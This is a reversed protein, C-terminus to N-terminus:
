KATLVIRTAESRQSMNAGGGQHSYARALVPGVRVPPVLMLLVVLMAVIAVPLFVQQRRALPPSSLVRKARRLLLSSSHAFTLTPVASDHTAALAALARVYALRDGTRRAASDDCIFEADHRLRRAIAGIMPQSVLVAAAVDAFFLWRSDRRELHAVEHAVVALREAPMLRVVSDTSLCVENTGLAVAGSIAPSVSIRATEGRKLRMLAAPVGLAEAAIPQRSRMKMRFRSRSRALRWTAVTAPVITALLIAFSVFPAIPDSVREFVVSRGATRTVTVLVTTGPLAVPSFARLIGTVSEADVNLRLAAPFFTTACLSTVLPLILTAKWLLERQYPEHLVLRGLALSISAAVTAHVLLTVLFTALMSAAGSM